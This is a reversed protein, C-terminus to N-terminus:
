VDKSQWPMLICKDSSEQFRKECLIKEEWECEKFGLIVFDNCVIIPLKLLLHNSILLECKEEDSMNSLREKLKMRKYVSSNVDFFERASVGNKEIWCKLESMWLKENKIDRFYFEIKNKELWARANECQQKNSDGIFIVGDQPIEREKEEQEIVHHCYARIFYYIWAATIISVFGFLLGFFLYANIDSSFPTIIAVMGVVCAVTLEKLDAHNGSHIIQIYIRYTTIGVCMSLVVLVVWVVYIDRRFYQRLLLYTLAYTSIMLPIAYIGHFLNNNKQTHEVKKLFYYLSIITAFSLLSFVISWLIIHKVFCLAVIFDVISWIAVLVVQGEGVNEESELFTRIKDESANLLAIKGM